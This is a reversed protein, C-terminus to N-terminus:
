ATFSSYDLAPQINHSKYILISDRSIQFPIKTRIDKLFFDRSQLATPNQCSAINGHICPSVIKYSHSQFSNNYFPSTSFPREEDEDQENSWRSKECEFEFEFEFGFEFLIGLALPTSLGSENSM